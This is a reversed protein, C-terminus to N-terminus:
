GLHIPHVLHFYKIRELRRLFAVLIAANNAALPPDVNDVLGIGAELRALTLEPAVPSTHPGNRRGKKM